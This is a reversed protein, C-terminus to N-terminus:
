ISRNLFYKLEVGKNLARHGAVCGAVFSGGERRAKTRVGGRRCTLDVAIPADGAHRLGLRQTGTVSPQSVFPQSHETRVAILSISADPRAAIATAANPKRAGNARWDTDHM